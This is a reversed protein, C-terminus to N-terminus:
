KVETHVGDDVAAFHKNPHNGIEFEIMLLNAADVLTETNGTEAYARIRRLASEIRDYKPQNPDRFYGYRYIGLLMRNRMLGIFKDSWNERAQALTFRYVQPEDHEPLGCAWRWLNSLFFGRDM